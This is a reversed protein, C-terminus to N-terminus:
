DVHLLAYNLTIFHDLEAPRRRLCLGLRNEGEAVDEPRLLFTAEGLNTSGKRRWDDEVDFPIPRGNWSLELEHEHGLDVAQLWLRVQTSAPIREPIDVTFLHALGDESRGITSPLQGPFCAHGYIYDVASQRSFEYTRPLRRLREPDRIDRTFEFGTGAGSGGVGGQYFPLHYFYNFLELGVAGRKYVRLTAARLKRYYLDAADGGYHPPEGLSRVTALAPVGYRRAEAAIDDWPTDFPNYGAGIIVLDLLGEALWTRIDMGMRLGLDLTDPVRLLFHIPRGRRRAAEQVCARLRKMYATFLHRQGYAEEKRFLYPWRMFDLMLADLDFSNATEEVFRYQRDRVAGLAYNFAYAEVEAQHRPNPSPTGLLLEPHEQKFRSMYYWGPERVPRPPKEPRSYQEFHFIDHLDNMRVRLVVDLGIGHCAETVIATPNLGQAELRRMGEVIKWTGTDKLLPVGDAMRDLVASPHYAGCAANVGYSYADFPYGEVGEITAQRLGQPTPPWSQRLPPEGEDHLLLRYDVIKRSQFPM